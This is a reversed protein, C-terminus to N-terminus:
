PTNASTTNTTNTTSVSGTTSSTTQTTGQSTQTTQTSQTSTQTTTKTQTTATPSRKEKASSEGKSEFKAGGLQRERAPPLAPRGTSVAGLQDIAGVLTGKEGKQIPKYEGNPWWIYAFFGAASATAAVFAARV